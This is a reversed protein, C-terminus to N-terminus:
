LERCTELVDHEDDPSVFQILICHRNGSARSNCNTEGSSSCSTSSVHLTIFLFLYMCFFKHMANTMYWSDYFKRKEVIYVMMMIKKYINAQNHGKSTSVLLWYYFLLLIFMCNHLVSYLYLKNDKLALIESLM